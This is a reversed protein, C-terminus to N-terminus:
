CVADTRESATSYAHLHADEVHGIMELYADHLSFPRVELDTIHPKTLSLDRVFPVSESVTKSYLREHERWSVRTGWSHKRAITETTGRAVIRGSVLIAVSDALLEAETLDHTTLVM